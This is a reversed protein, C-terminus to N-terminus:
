VNASSISSDMRPKEIMVPPAALVQRLPIHWPPMSTSQISKDLVITRHECLEISHHYIAPSLRQWSTRIFMVFRVCCNTRNCFSDLYPM